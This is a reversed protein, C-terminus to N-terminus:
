RILEYREAAVRRTLWRYTFTFGPWLARNVGDDDFYWSKCGTTWVTRQMRRQLRRNLEAQVGPKVDVARAHTRRLLELADLVYAFQSEMMLIMSNHGLGTNPGILTFFNPFGAVSTGLYAQQGGRWADRLAIGSRGRVDLAALAGNPRFGTGFIVADVAHARGDRTVVTNETLKAIPETVLEVNSRCLSPYYNSSLLVRKCGLVFNPTLKRRLTEDPVQRALHKLAIAEVAPALKPNVALGLARIELSWYIRARELWAYFPIRRRKRRRHSIPRDGRPIIWPATRQFVTLHEAAPAIEPVFQIASAGTGVAAVRKGRPDFSTDWNASHFITGAFREIGPIEPISWTNLPGTASVLARCRLSGDDRTRVTWVADREDYAADVVDCNFRISPLLGYKRACARVYQWIEEQSPYVRTWDTQTEFSFSYLMAPVDCACGPYVND